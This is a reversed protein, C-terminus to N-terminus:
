ASQLIISDGTHYMAIKGKEGWGMQRRISAPLIVRGLFDINCVTLANTDSDARQMVVETGIHTLSVNDGKQLGLKRRFDVPIVVRCLEDITRIQFKEM